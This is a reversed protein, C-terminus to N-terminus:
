AYELVLILGETGAAGAFNNGSASTASAGGGGAGPGIGAAGAADSMGGVGGGGGLPGSGGHGGIAVAAGLKIGATGPAGGGNVLNGGTAVTTAGGATAGIAASEATFTGGGGGQATLPTGGSDFVTSGGAGGNGGGSAGAAGAAGVSYSPSSPLSTYHHKLFGGAAGGGGVASQGATGGAVGGGGGGGGVMVVTAQTASANWSHSGSGTSYVTVAVLTGGITSADHLLTRWNGNIRADIGALSTNYRMMGNAPSGTRQATTGSPLQFWGTDEVKVGLIGTSERIARLVNSWASGTYVTFDLSSGGSGIDTRGARWASAEPAGTSTDPVGWAFYAGPAAMFYTDSVTVGAPAYDVGADMLDVEPPSIVWGGAVTGGPIRSRGPEQTYKWTEGVMRGFPEIRGVAPTTRRAAEIAEEPPMESYRLDWLAQNSHQPFGLLGGLGVQMPSWAVAEPLHTSPDTRQIPRGLAASYGGTPSRFPGPPLGGNPLPFDPIPGGNNPAQSPPTPGGFGPPLGTPPPRPLPAPPPAESGAPAEGPADPPDAPPQGPDPPEGPETTPPEAPPTPDGSPEDPNPTIPPGDNPPGDSPPGEPPTTPPDRKQTFFSEAELRWLGQAQGDMWPHTKQEDYRIWARVRLPAQVPGYLKKDFELPADRNQERYWLHHDVAFHGSNMPEGDANPQQALNHQDNRHGCHMGGHVPWAFLALGHGRGAAALARERPTSQPSPGGPAGAGPGGAPTLVPGDGGADSKTVSKVDLLGYVAGFGVQGGRGSVSHQWAAVWGEVTQRSGIRPAHAVRWATQLRAARRESITDKPDLDCVLSGMVDSENKNVAILRPDLWGLLPEQGDERTGAGGLMITGIAPSPLWDPLGQKAQAFDGDTAYKRTRIPLASTERFKSAPTIPRGKEDAHRTQESSATVKVFLAQHWLGCDRGKPEWWRWPHIDGVTGGGEDDYVFGRWEDEGEGPIVRVGALALRKGVDVQRHDQLVWIGLNERSGTFSM